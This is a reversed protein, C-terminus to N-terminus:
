KARSRLVNQLLAAADKAEQQGVKAKLVAIFDQMQAESLGTNM